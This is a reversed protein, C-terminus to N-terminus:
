FTFVRVKVEQEMRWNRWLQAKEALWSIYSYVNRKENFM